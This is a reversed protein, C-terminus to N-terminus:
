IARINPQIISYVYVYIFGPRIKILILYIQNQPSPHATPRTPLYEGGENFLIKVIDDAFTPTALIDLGHSLHLYLPTENFHLLIKNEKLGNNRKNQALFDSFCVPLDNVKNGKKRKGTWKAFPM